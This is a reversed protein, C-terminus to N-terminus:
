FPFDDEKKESKDGLKKGLYIAVAATVGVVLEAEDFGPTEGEKLHRGQESTYGWIKEIAQDLPRPVFGPNKKLIEGLTAKKEGTIERSTCELCALSHQIAGTVDPDPRRSLDHIAEKIEKKATQLNATELATEAHKITTEFGEDGRYEILGYEIKWGVGSQRFYLNLEDQIGGTQKYRYCEM